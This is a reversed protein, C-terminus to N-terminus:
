LSFHYGNGPTVNYIVLAGLSDATGSGIVHHAANYLTAVTGKPATLYAADVSGFARTTAAAGASPSFPAPVITLAAFVLASAVALAVLGRPSRCRQEIVHSVLVGMM